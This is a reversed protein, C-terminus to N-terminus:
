EIPYITIWDTKTTLRKPKSPIENDFSPEPYEGIKTKEDTMFIFQWDNITDHFYEWDNMLDRSVKMDPYQEILEKVTSNPNLSNTTQLERHAAIILLVTDTGLRPILGFLIDDGLYYLYAPSGGGFGFNVAEDEKKILGNFQNEAEQITMGVKIVGLQGKMITFDSFQFETAPKETELETKTENKTNETSINCSYIFFGVFVTWFLKMKLLSNIRLILRIKM